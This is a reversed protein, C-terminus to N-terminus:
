SPSRHVGRHLSCLVTALEPSAEPTLKIRLSSVSNAADLLSFPASQGRPWHLQHGLGRPEAGIVEGTQGRSGRSHNLFETGTRRTGQGPRDGPRQDRWRGADEVEM